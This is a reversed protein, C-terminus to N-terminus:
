WEFCTISGDPNSQGWECPFVDFPFPCEAFTDVWICTGYLDCCALKATPPAVDRVVHQKFPIATAPFYRSVHPCTGASVSCDAATLLFLILSLM